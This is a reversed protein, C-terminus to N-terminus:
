QRLWHHFNLWDIVEDQKHTSGYYPQRQKTFQLTQTM